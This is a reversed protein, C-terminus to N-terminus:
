KDKRAVAPKAGVLGTALAFKGREVKRFRSDAGKVAIERIIAAYITAAPTRGNTKWLGDELMLDVMERTNLPGSADALVKAAADLGSTRKAGDARPKATDRKAAKPADKAAKSSKKATTAVDAAKSHRLGGQAQRLAPKEAKAEAEYEALSVVKKRKAPRNALGRLRQASKIRVKRNTAVNVGDWGGHQSEGTIRVDAISGSVKARYVKGIQVENKKM